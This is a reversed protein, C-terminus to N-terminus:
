IHSLIERCSKGTHLSIQQNSGERKGYFHCFKEAFSEKTDRFKNIQGKM